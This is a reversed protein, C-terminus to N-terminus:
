SAPSLCGKLSAALARLTQDYADTGATVMVGEPDLAATKAATGEIVTQVIKNEFGPEAFVCAARLAVIKKRLDTLRKGSPPTEPDVTISGVPTLGYRVELYQFADHFVVYPKGAVAKLEAAVEADLADLRQRATAANAKFMAAQAPRKASLAEAIASVIAKANAPDLWVHGDVLATPAKTGAGHDHGAHKKASHDHKEFTLGARRPLTMIGPAQELTVLQVSKPLSKALKATFPEVTDSLRFVIDATNLTKADSPKLAYTHPSATGDVVLTPTGVGAMVQVVLAHIPKLTVAVKLPVDQPATQANAGSAGPGFALLVAVCIARHSPLIM